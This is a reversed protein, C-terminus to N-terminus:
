LFSDVEPWARKCERASRERERETVNIERRTVSECECIILMEIEREIQRDIEKCTIRVKRSM